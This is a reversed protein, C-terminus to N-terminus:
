HIEDSQIGPTLFSLPSSLTNKIGEYLKEREEKEEKEKQIKIAFNFVSGIVGLSTLVIGFVTQQYIALLTGCIILVSSSSMLKSFKNESM